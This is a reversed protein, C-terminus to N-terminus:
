ILSSLAKRVEQSISQVSNSGYGDKIVLTRAHRMRSWHGAKGKGYGLRAVHDFLPCAALTDEQDLAITAARSYTELAMDIEGGEEYLAAARQLEGRSALIRAALPALEQKEQIDLLQRPHSHLLPHFFAWTHQGRPVILRSAAAQEIALEAVDPAVLYVLYELV